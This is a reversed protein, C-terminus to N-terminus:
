LSPEGAVAKSARVEDPMGITHELREMIEIIPGLNITPKTKQELLAQAPMLIEALIQEPKHQLATESMQQFREILNEPRMGLSEWCEHTWQKITDAMLKADKQMWRAVLQSSLRRASQELLAHRPWLIRYTGFSHV